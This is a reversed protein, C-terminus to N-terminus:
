QTVHPFSTGSVVAAHKKSFANTLPAPASLEWATIPSTSHRQSLSELMINTRGGSFHDSRFYTKQCSPPSCHRLLSVRRLLNTVFNRCTSTSTECNWFM